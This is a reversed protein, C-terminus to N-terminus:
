MAGLMVLQGNPLQIISSLRRTFAKSTALFHDLSSRRKFSKATAFFDEASYVSGCGSDLDCCSSLSELSSRFEDVESQCQCLDQLDEDIFDEDNDNEMEYEYVFREKVARYINGPLKQYKKIMKQMSTITEARLDDASEFDRSDIPDGLRTTLKVPFGGYLPTLPANTKNYIWMWLEMGSEMNVYAERVNETFMPIIPVGAEKAVIAFGKRQKWMVPYDSNSALQAEYGGGPAVGVVHGEKLLKIVEERGGPMCGFTRLLTEAGPMLILNRDMVSRILRGKELYTRFILALYDIPICAHYYVILAGGEKPIKDFGLFHISFTLVDPGTSTM